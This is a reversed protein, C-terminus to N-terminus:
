IYFKRQICFIARFVYFNIKINLRKESYFLIKETCLFIKRFLIVSERFIFIHRMYFFKERFIFAQIKRWILEGYSCGDLDTPKTDKYLFFFCQVNKHENKIITVQGKEPDVVTIILIKKLTILQFM